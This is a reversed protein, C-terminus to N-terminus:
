TAAESLLDLCFFSAKTLPLLVENSLTVPEVSIELLRMGLHSTDLNMKEAEYSIEEKDAECCLARSLVQGVQRRHLNRCGLLGSLWVSIQQPNALRVACAKVM